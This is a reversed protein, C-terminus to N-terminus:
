ESKVLLITTSVKKKKRSTHYNDLSSRIFTTRVPHKYSILFPVRLEHVIVDSFLQPDMAFMTLGLFQVAKM